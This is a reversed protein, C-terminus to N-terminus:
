ELYKTLEVILDQISKFILYKVFVKEGKSVQTHM